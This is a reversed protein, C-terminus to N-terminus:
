KDYRHPRVIGVGKTVFEATVFELFIRFTEQSCFGPKKAKVLCFRKSSLFGTELRVKRCVGLTAFLQFYLSKKIARNTIYIYVVSM